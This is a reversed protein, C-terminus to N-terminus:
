NFSSCVKRIKGKSGTLVGLRGMKVMTLGFDRRFNDPSSAYLEVVPKTTNSSLLAGDSQLVASGNRINIFYQNDFVNESGEDIAIRANVNGGKPCKAQLKALYGPAISPDPRGTGHFNFLRNPMFFCATTGITHAASLLVLDASSLGQASFKKLLVDIPDEVDPLNSAHDISSSLGDRRGTEVEYFPGKTLVVSDRAALAVIDACSVVGPCKSELQAKANDIVDFGGLGQHGFAKNEQKGDSSKILISGECGDVICDHFHLRLLQGPVAADSQFAKAVASKVIDEAGPCNKKYFGVSLQGKCTCLFSLLAIASLIALQPM